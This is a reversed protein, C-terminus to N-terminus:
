EGTLSKAEDVSIEEGNQFAKIEAISVGRSTFRKLVIKAESFLSKEGAYYTEDGNDKSEKTIGEDKLDVFTIARADPVEGQYTGLFVKYVVGDVAKPGTEVINVTPNRLDTIKLDKVGNESYLEIVKRADSESAFNGVFYRQNSNLKEVNVVFQPIMLMANAIDTPIEGEYSGLDVQYNGNQNVEVDVSTAPNTNTNLQKLQGSADTAFISEGQEAILEKARLLSIKEGNYYATVFADTNGRAVMENKRVVADDISSYIGTSYKYLSGIFKTVLPSINFVDTAKIPKSFAGIQVTYYLGKIRDADNTKAAGDGLNVEVDNSGVNDNTNTNANNNANSANGNNGANNAEDNGVNSNTTNNSAIQNSSETTTGQLNKAEALTIRDGNYIAVVFADSYGMGRIENKADNATTYEVFYGVRYRVLNGIKEGTIPAFGSFLSNPIPKSFAGVQVKYILGDPYNENLPIPNDDSYAIANNIAIINSEVKTPVIFNSSILQDFTIVGVKKVPSKNYDSVMLAKIDSQEEPNLSSVLDDQSNISNNIKDDLVGQKDEISEVKSKNDKIVDRLNEIKNEIEVKESQPSTKLANEYGLLDQQQQKIINQIGIKEGELKSKETKFGIIENQKDLYEPYYDNSKINEADEPTLNSLLDEKSSIEDEKLKQENALKQYNNAIGLLTSAQMGKEDARNLMQIKEDGKALLASDRSAISANNLETSKSTLESAQNNLDESSFANSNNAIVNKNSSYAAEVYLDAAKNYYNVAELEKSNAIKLLKGKEIKNKESDAQTRLELAQGELDTAKNEYEESQSLETSKVIEQSSFSEKVVDLNNKSGNLDAKVLSQMEEDIKLEEKIISGDIKTIKKEIKAKEKDSQVNQAEVNLAVRDNNLERIKEISKENNNLVDTAGTSSFISTNSYDVDKVETSVIYAEPQDIRPDYSVENVDQVQVENLGDSKAKSSLMSESANGNIVDQISLQSNVNNTTQNGNNQNSAVDTTNTNDQTGNNTANTTNGNNSTNSSSQDSTLPITKAVYGESAVDDLLSLAERQNDIASSNLQHAEELLSSKLNQDTTSGAEEVKSEALSRQEEASANYIKAKIYNEDKEFDKVIDKIVDINNQLLEDNNSMEAQDADIAVIGVKSKLQNIESTKSDIKEQIKEQKKEKTEQSLSNELAIKEQEKVSLMDRDDKSSAQLDAAQQNKFSVEEALSTSYDEPQNIQQKTSNVLTKLENSSNDNIVPSSAAIIKDNNLIENEFEDRQNDLTKRFKMLNDMEEQSSSELLAKNVEVIKYDYKDVLDVLIANKETLKESDSLSSNNDIAEFYETPDFSEIIKQFEEVKATPETQSNNSGNTGDTSNNNTVDTNNSGNTGDTSNNNTVDTNNSGNTGDTSNNNVIDNSNNGNYSNIADANNSIGNQVSNNTMFDALDSKEQETLSSKNGNDLDYALDELLQAQHSLADAEEDLKEAKAYSEEAWKGNTAIQEKIEDIQVQVSPKDKNSSKELERELNALRINLSEEEKRFEKAKALEKLAAEKTEKAKAAVTEGENNTAAGATIIGELRTKLEKLQAFAKDHDKEAVANEISEFTLKSEDAEKQSKEHQTKLSNGLSYATKAQLYQDKAKENLEKALSAQQQKEMPNDLEEIGSLLEEALKANEAAEKSKSNAVAFAAEMREKVEDAEKQADEYMTKSMSVLDELSVNSGDLVSDVDSNNIVDQFKDANVDPDALFQMADALLKEREEEEFEEDFLNQIILKEVGGENTLIIKQKLPKFEKQPPIIVPSTHIKESEETEVIFNYNGSKPLIITYKGDSNPNYVGIIEDNRSDQIKITAIDAGNIKNNFTGALLVNLIPFTEVRVKYVDIRGIKTARSSAFYANQELSDVIYMLDDDPTNIKYDLNVPPGFTNSQLDYSCKFVDYGGMSNHGKSCFYFVTKSSHLFGYADDYQTNIHAPLKQSDGWDGNPLRKRSYLDLGESGDKGYSSYFIVDNGKGIPPIYTMSRFGLKADYKSQFEESIIIRGGMESLDYSYPFKEISTETKADVILETLNNLLKKGNQAMKLHMEAEYKKLDDQSGKAQFNAYHKQAEGFKYLLHYTKGLFFHVRPDANKSAAFNLYPLAEKKNDGTLLLCTGYKFNIDPDLRNSPLLQLFYTYAEEYKGEDFITNAYKLKDGEDKFTQQSTGNWFSVLLLLTIYIIKKLPYYM